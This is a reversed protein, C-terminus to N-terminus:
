KTEETKAKPPERNLLLRLEKSNGDASETLFIKDQVNPLIRGLSESLRQQVFLDPNARYKPLVDNFRDAQSAVDNVLRARESQALNIRSRADAAAKSLTQNEYSRAANLLQGRNVEAKLVNAFADKLQRPPISQVTCQKVLIGLDQKKILDDARRFVAENFAAVDRTLIADVNFRSATALLATDLANQIANSANVFGFVYRKPENIQYTLTARVHVINNDATLAYGDVAPNLPSTPYVPPETGAAEQAPTTAYWGVTSKVQQIGSISVIEHEDIPYPLSFHLGPGLLAQEGEGLPRGLRLIIARQQPGVTFFGSCVFVVFLVVMVIKVIAFSSRLAESLAQSGADMPTETSGPAKNLDDDLNPFDAM